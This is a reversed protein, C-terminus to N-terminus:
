GGSVESVRFYLTFCIFRINKSTGLSRQAELTLIRPGFKIFKVQMGSSGVVPEFENFKTGPQFFNVGFVLFKNNKKGLSNM